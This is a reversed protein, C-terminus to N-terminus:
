CSLLELSEEPLGAQVGGPDGVRIANSICKLLLGMDVPKRLVNMSGVQVIVGPNSEGPAILGTLMVIPVRRLFPDRAFQAAVDGGDLGPMVVDLLVLHPRFQRAAILALFPNNVEQVEYKGARELSKGLMRTFGEDDDVLLVRHRMSDFLLTSLANTNMNTNRNPAPHKTRVCVRTGGAADVLVPLLTVRGFLLGEDLGRLKGAIM